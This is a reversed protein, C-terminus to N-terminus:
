FYFEAYRTGDKREYFGHLIESSETKFSEGHVEGDLVIEVEQYPSYPSLQQIIQWFTLGTASSGDYYLCMQPRGKHENIAEVCTCKKDDFSVIEHSVKTEVTGNLRIEAVQEIDDAMVLEGIIEAVQM